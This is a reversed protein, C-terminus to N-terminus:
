RAWCCVLTAKQCIARCSSRSNVEGLRWPSTSPRYPAPRCHSTHPTGETTAKEKQATRWVRLWFAVDALDAAINKFFGRERRAADSQVATPHRRQRPGRTLRRPEGRGGRTAGGRRGGGGTAGRDGISGPGDKQQRRRPGSRVNPMPRRPPSPGRRRGTVDGGRGARAHAEAGRGRAEGRLRDSGGRRARRRARAGGRGSVRAARDSPQQRGQADVM